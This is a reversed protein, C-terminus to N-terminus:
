RSLDVIREDELFETTEIPGSVDVGLVARRTGGLVCHVHDSLHRLLVSRRSRGDAAPPTLCHITFSRVRGPVTCFARGPGPPSRAIEANRACGCDRSNCATRSRVRFARGGDLPANNAIERRIALRRRM